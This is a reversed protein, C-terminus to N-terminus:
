CHSVFIESLSSASVTGDIFDFYIQCLFSLSLASDHILSYQFYTIISCFHIDIKKAIWKHSIWKVKHWEHILSYQFFYTFLLFILWYQSFLHIDFFKQYNKQCTKTGFNLFLKLLIYRFLLKQIKTGFCALFVVFHKQINM